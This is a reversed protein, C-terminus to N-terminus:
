VFLNDAPKKSGNLGRDPVEFMSTVPESDMLGYLMKLTEPYGTRHYIEADEKTEWHTEEIATLWITDISTAGDCFGKQLRLAPMIKDHIKQSLETFSNPKLQIRARHTFM